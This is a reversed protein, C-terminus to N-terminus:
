PFETSYKRYGNIKDFLNQKNHITCVGHVNSESFVFVPVFYCSTWVGPRFYPSAWRDHGVGSSVAWYGIRNEWDIQEQV